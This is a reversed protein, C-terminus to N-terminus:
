PRCVDKIDLLWKERDEKVERPADPALVSDNFQRVMFRCMFQEDKWFGKAQGALLDERQDKFLQTRPDQYNPARLTKKADKAQALGVFSISLVLSMLLKKM